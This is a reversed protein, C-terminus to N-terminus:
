IGSWLEPRGEDCGYSRNTVISHFALQVDHVHKQYGVFSILLCIYLLVNQM